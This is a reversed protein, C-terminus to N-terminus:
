HIRSRAYNKFVEIQRLAEIFKIKSLDLKVSYGPKEKVKTDYVGDFSINGGFAKTNFGTIFAEKNRISITGIADSM